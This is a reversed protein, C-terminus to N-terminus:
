EDAWLPFYVDFRTGKGPKSSVNIKGGHAKTIKKVYYLGIGFGRANQVDGTPVRYFRDFIRPLNDRSIGKGKDEVSFIYFGSDNRSSITIVTKKDSYKIANSVLNNIINGLHLVDAAAFPNAANMNYILDIKRDCHELLLNDMIKKIEEDMNTKALVLNFDERKELAALQLVRDIQKRMRSNEDYIVRAYRAIRSDPEEKQTNLLVESALSITALPTKFEHTINNIFDDRIESIKKQRIITIIIYYFSFIIIVLFIASTLMWSGTHGLEDKRHGPFYIELHLDDIGATGPLCARHVDTRNKVTFAAPSAYLTSDNITKVVSWAYSSDLDHYDVYKKILDSLLSTDIFAPLSPDSTHIDSIVKQIVPKDRYHNEQLEEIVDGLALDVRHAHQKEALDFANRIWKMQIVILGALSLASFLIIYKM